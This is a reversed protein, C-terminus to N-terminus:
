IEEKMNTFINNVDAQDEIKKLLNEIQSMKKTEKVKIVNKPVMEIEAYELPYKEELKSKVEQLDEKKTLVTIEEPTDQIDEAGAEIAAIEIEEKKKNHPFIKIIGKEEFLWKVSNVQGLHGGFESLINKIESTTRNKNNTLVQILIAIGGPGYAEYLVEEIKRGEIEGTRRKIAKEINDLPMNAERAKEIALRLKFNTEPNSKGEKTALIIAKSLKSFLKGKKQDSAQKQRKIQAWKSHGSM